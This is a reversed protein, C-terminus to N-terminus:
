AICCWSSGAKYPLWLGNALPLLPLFLSRLSGLALWRRPGAGGQGAARCSLGDGGDGMSRGLLFAYIAVLPMLTATHLFILFDLHKSLRHGVADLKAGFAHNEADM